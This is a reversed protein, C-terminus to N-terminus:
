GHRDIEITQRVSQASNAAASKVADIQISTAMGLWFSSAWETPETIKLLSTIPFVGPNGSGGPPLLLTRFTESKQKSAKALEIRGREVNAAQVCLLGDTVTPLLLDGASGTLKVLGVVGSNQGSVYVGNYSTKFNGAWQGDLQVIFSSPIDAYPTASDWAWPSTPYMPQVTLIQDMPDPVIIAGVANALQALADIPALDAYTFMGAPVLWDQTSWTCTWGTPMLGDALQSANQTLNSTLTTKPAYPAGLLASLSRGRIKCGTGGFKRNDTFGEIIFRWDYGNINVTVSVPDDNTMPNVLALKALPITADLTWAYSTADLKLSADIAFLDAGDSDRLISLSPIMFYADASPIVITSGPPLDPEGGFPITYGSRFPYGPRWRLRVYSERPTTGNWDFQTFSNRPAADGWRLRTAHEFADLRNWIFRDLNSHLHKADAFRLRIDSGHPAVRGWAARFIRDRPIGARMRVRIDTEHSQLLSWTSRVMNSKPVAGIKEGADYLLADDYANGDDYRIDFGGFHVTIAHPQAPHWAARLLNAGREATKFPARLSSVHTAASIPPAADDYSDGLDYSDHRDYPDAM